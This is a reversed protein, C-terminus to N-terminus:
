KFTLKGLRRMKGNQLLFIMENDSVQITRRPLFYLKAEGVSMLTKRESNGNQDFTLLSLIQKKKMGISPFYEVPSGTKIVSENELRDNFILRIKNRTVALGYSLMLERTQQEQNKAVVKEFGELEGNPGLSVAIVSNRVFKTVWYDMGNSSSSRVPVEYSYAEEGLLVMGGDSRMIIDQFRINNSLHEMVKSKKNKSKRDLDLLSMEELMEEPYPIIKKVDRKLTKGNLRFFFLGRILMEKGEGIRIMYSGVCIIDGDSEIQISMNVLPKDEVELEYEDAEEFGPYLVFLKFIHDFAKAKKSEKYKALVFVRGDDGVKYSEISLKEEPYPLEFEGKWLEVMEENFVHIGFKDLDGKHTPLQYHLLIKSSDRSREIFYNPYKYKPYGDFDVEAILRGQEPYSLDKKGLFRHFLLHKRNGIDQRFSFLHLYELAGLAELPKESSKGKGLIIRKSVILNLEKDFKRMVSADQQTRFSFVNDAFSSSINEQFVYYGSNDVGFITPAFLPNLDVFEEGLILDFSKEEQAFSYLCNFFILLSLILPKNM